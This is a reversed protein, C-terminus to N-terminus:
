PELTRHVIHLTASLVRERDLGAAITDAAAHLLDFLLPATTEVDVARFAGGDVGARLFLAVMSAASRYEETPRVVAAPGHFVADHLSGLDLQFDIFHAVEDDLAEWWEVATLDEYRHALETRYTDLLRDRVAILLDDWTPFYRYFNGKATGAADTIDEVRCAEPGVDALVRIAADLLETRRAEPHLRRRAPKRPPRTRRPTESRTSM